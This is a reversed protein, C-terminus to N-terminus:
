VPEFRVTRAVPDASVLRVELEDGPQPHPTSVRAVVAPDAIQIRAGREDVDTVVAHFAEGERGHLAIAEALDLVARDIQSERAGAKDMVDPLRAFGDEVWGPVETGSSVALTAEIVYRDALRRLPATAQAYTAAMAAHWPTVGDQYPAYTAGGGARRVALLFAAAKPVHADLGREFVALTQARPWNLGLAHATHRLRRIAREDAEPMVRFLGTKAEFLATAVALNTALSLASNQEAAATRAEFELRAEGDPGVDVHQEPFEVRSAGRADEAATIRRALEDFGDPLEAPGATEYALKARSRVMARRTQELRPNGDPDVRVTFVVAPRPGDPLLSAAHEALVPPHLGERDGPLYVTLGRTWAETDIADGPRVFWAVDAIAYQLVIDDGRREIAFAQDLDTSTAPDLTVFGVDTLDVREDDIPRKAAADAAALVEPPFGDPVQFQKRIAAIGAGFVGSAVEGGSM